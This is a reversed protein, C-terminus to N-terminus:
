ISMIDKQKLEIIKDIREINKDTLKQLEDQAKKSEDETIKSEKEIKKIDNLVDRRINRVAVKANEGEQKVQKSLQQRREETLEPVTIRIIEGNNTPNFGLNAKLIAKEIASITSKDWPQILITRADSTGLNAIQKLPTPNGYYDVKIDALIAPNAKGARIKSINEELFIIAKEMKEKASDLLKQAEEYM